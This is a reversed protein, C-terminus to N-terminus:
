LNEGTKQFMRKRFSTLIQGADFNETLKQM